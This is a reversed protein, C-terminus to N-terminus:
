VFSDVAFFWPDEPSAPYLVGWLVSDMKVVLPPPFEAFVSVVELGEKAWTQVLVSVWAWYDGTPAV